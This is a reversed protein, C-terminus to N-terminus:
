KFDTFEAIHLTCTSVRLDFWRLGHGKSFSLGALPGALLLELFTHMAYFSVSFLRHSVKRSWLALRGRM